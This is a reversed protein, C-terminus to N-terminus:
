GVPRARERREVRGQHLQVPRLHLRPEEGRDADLHPVQPLERVLDEDADRQVHDEHREPRRRRERVPRQVQLHRRQRAPVVLPRRSRCGRPGRREPDLQLLVVPRGRQGPQVHRPDPRLRRPQDGRRDHLRGPRRPQRRLVRHGHRLHGRRVGPHRQELHRRPDQRRHRPRVRPGRRRHRRDVRQHGPPPRDPGAHRRLLRQRRQPRGPDPGLRGVREHRQSRALQLAHPAGARRRLVRRRLRDGQQDRRRQGLRQRHRHVHHQEGRGPVQAHHRQLQDDLVVHRLRVDPDHRQGGLRRHRHRARDARAVGPGPRHQRRGLRAALLGRRRPHGPGRGRLGAQHRGRPALHGAGPHVGHRGPRGPRHRRRLRRGRHHRAHHERDRGPRGPGGLHRRGPRRLQGPRRLRWRGRAPGRPDARLGHLLHRQRRHLHRRPHLRGPLLARPRHRPGQGLRQGGAPGRPPPQGGRPRCRGPHRDTGPVVCRGCDIRSRGPPGSPSEESPHGISLEPGAPGLISQTM